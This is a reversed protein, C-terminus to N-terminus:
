KRGWGETEIVYRLNFPQSFQKQLDMLREMDIGKMREKAQIDLPTLDESYRNFLEKADQEQIARLFRDTEVKFCQRDNYNALYGAVTQQESISLSKLWSSEPLVVENQYALDMCYDVKKLWEREAQGVDITNSSCGVLAVAVFLVSSQLKLLVAGFGEKQEM